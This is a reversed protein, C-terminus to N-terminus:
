EVGGGGGSQDVQGLTRQQASAFLPTDDPDFTLLLQELCEKDDGNAQSLTSTVVRERVTWSDPYAPPESYSIVAEGDINDLRKVLAAHDVDHHPYYGESRVAPYPPDDDIDNYVENVSEPKHVLVAASGGFVEVYTNHDPLHSIIWPALRSKSGSYNMVAKSSEIRSSERSM